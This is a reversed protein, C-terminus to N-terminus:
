YRFYPQYGHHRRVPRGIPIMAEKSIFLPSRRGNSYVAYETRYGPRVHIVQRTYKTRRPGYAKVDIVYRGPALRGLDVWGGPRRNVLYGDVSVQIDFPGDAYIRASAQGRHNPHHAQATFASSLVLIILALHKM